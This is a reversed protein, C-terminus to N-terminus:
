EDSWLGSFDQTTEVKPEVVKKQQPVSNLYSEFKTGFLTAPRIYEKMKQDKGWQEVKYDIVKVFDDYTFGDSLRARIHKVTDDTNAKYSKNAKVNLYNVIQKITDTNNDKRPKEEVVNLGADELTYSKNDKIKLMRFDEQYNTPVYRDSRLTNHMRWHKIVIVGDEFAILFRKVILLKLDDISAKVYETVKKPNGLFGDDDARLNLHFYLAQTSLPLDLFADSDLVTNDFM